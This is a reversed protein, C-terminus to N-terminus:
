WPVCSPMYAVYHICKAIHISPIAFCSVWQLLLELPIISLAFFYWMANLGQIQWFLFQVQLTQSNQFHGRGYLNCLLETLKTDFNCMRYVLIHAFQYGIWDYWLGFWLFLWLFIYTDCSRQGPKTWNQLSWYPYWKTFLMLVLVVAGVNRQPIQSAQTVNYNCTCATKSKFRWRIKVEHRPWLYNM